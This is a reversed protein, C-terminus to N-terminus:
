PLVTVVNGPERCWLRHKGGPLVTLGYEAMGPRGSADWSAWAAEALTWVDVPGHQEVAAGQWPTGQPVYAVAWSGDPIGLWMCDDGDELTPGTVTLGPVALQLVWLHKAEVVSPLDLNTTSTREPGAADAVDPPAQATRDGMFQVPFLMRGEATGDMGVTLRVFVDLGHGVTLPACVLGGPRTQGIWAAPIRRVAHTASVRDYPARGPYGATGDGATILPAFGAAEVRTRAADALGPDFEVSVVNASGLRASLLAATWGCGTGSELVAMGDAVDLGDLMASVVSPMSNSCSPIGDAVQTIIQHDTGVAADWEDPEAGRNHRVYRYGDWTFWEDPVFLNRPAADWAKCWAPNNLIGWGWYPDAALREALAPLDPSM